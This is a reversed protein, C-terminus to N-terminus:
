SQESHSELVSAGHGARTSKGENVKTAYVDASRLVSSSAASLFFILM